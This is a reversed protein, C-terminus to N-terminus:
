LRLLSPLPFRSSPIHSVALPLKQVEDSEVKVDMVGAEDALVMLIKLYRRLALLPPFMDREEYWVLLDKAGKSSNCARCAPMLNDGTDLGGLKSPVLHDLTM